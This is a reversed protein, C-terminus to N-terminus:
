PLGYFRIATGALIEAQEHESLKAIMRRVLQLWESYGSALRLVPWDSGFM